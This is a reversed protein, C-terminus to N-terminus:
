AASFLQRATTNDIHCRFGIVYTSKKTGKNVEQAEGPFAMPFSWSENDGSILLAAFRAEQRVLTGLPPLIGVTGAAVFATLAEVDSKSYKTLDAIVTGTAGLLQVDAPAGEAGGFDDSFIEHWRPDLRITIGDRSYGLDVGGFKLLAKGAVVHELAM